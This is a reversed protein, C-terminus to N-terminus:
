RVPNRILRAADFGLAPLKAGIRAYVEDSMRADRALIWLYDRGPEGVV